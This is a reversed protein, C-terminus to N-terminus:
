SRPSPQSCSRAPGPAAAVPRAAEVTLAGAGRLVASPRRAVLVQLGHEGVGGVLVVLGHGPPHPLPGVEVLRDGVLLDPLRDPLHRRAHPHTSSRVAPPTCASARHGAEGRAPGAPAPAAARSTGARGGAETSSSRSGSATSCSRSRETPRSRSRWPTSVGVFAAASSRSTTRRSREHNSGPDNTVTTVSSTTASSAATTGQVPVHKGPPHVSEEPTPPEAAGFREGVLIQQELHVAHRRRHLAQVQDLDVLRYPAGATRVTAAAGRPRGSGRGRADYPRPLAADASGSVRPTCATALIPRHGGPVGGGVGAGGDDGTRGGADAGGVGPLQGAVAVVEHEHGPAGM